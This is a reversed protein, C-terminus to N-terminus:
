YSGIVCTWRGAVPRPLPPTAACARWTDRKRRVRVNVRAEAHPSRRSHHTAKQGVWGARANTRGALSATALAQSLLAYLDHGPQRAWPPRVTRASESSRRVGSSSGSAPSAELFVRKRPKGRHISGASRPSRRSTPAGQSVTERACHRTRRPRPLANLQTGQTNQRDQMDSYSARRMVPVHPNRRPCSPQM